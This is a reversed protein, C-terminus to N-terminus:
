VSKRPVAIKYKKSLEWKQTNSIAIIRDTAKALMQEIKKFIYTKISGFYADLVHGHFTHVVIIKQKSFFNCILAALRAISGAKSTHSHVIDPRYKHIIIITKFLAILDKRLNIERQLEPVVIRIDNKLNAIYSMDGEDPSVSGTILKTEFKREDLGETLNKVHISPGGINMRSIVRLIRIKHKQQEGETRCPKQIKQIKKLVGVLHNFLVAILFRYMLAIGALPTFISFPGRAYKEYLRYCNKHFQYNAFVPRTSSSKGVSHTVKAGPFYVVKWGADWIRRCLDTDEWYLFFREDFGGVAQMAQRRIVMCAGSVWDVEMPEGNENNITLINSKSISNNPFMRTIPSNRGFFSTLPNPFARASGQVTNDENLMRPGVIGIRENSRVFEVAGSFLQRTAMTDPNMLLLLESRSMLMLQNIAAGFGINVPNLKIYVDPFKNKIRIPGDQSANDFVLMKLNYDPPKSAHLSDLCDIVCDTSNYNVIIIDLDYPNNSTPKM